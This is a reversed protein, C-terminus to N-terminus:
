ANKRKDTIFQYNDPIFLEVRTGLINGVTDEIDTIRQWIPHVNNQNYFDLQSQILSLGQGNGRTGLEQARKRGIGNDTINILVGNESKQGIINLFGAGKKNVLGHRIANDCYTHLTMTPILLSLDPIDEIDIMYDFRDGFRMKELELYHKLYNLEEQLTVYNKDANVLTLETFKSFVSIYHGARLKDTMAFHGIASLVNKTFHPIVKSRLTKIQLEDELNRYNLEALKQQQSRKVFYRTLLISIIVFLLIYILISIPQLYVPANITIMPSKAINSWHIGDMSCKVEFQYEGNGINTYNVSKTYVPESWKESFGILRYKFRLSKPRSISNAIYEFRLFKNSAPLEILKDSFIVSSWNANDKSYFLVSLRIPPIRRIQAQILKDPNFKLVSLATTLWVDGNHDEFFGNQGSELGTFGADYGIEWLEPQSLSKLRQIDVIILSRNGGVLLYKNHYVMLSYIAGNIRLSDFRMEKGDPMEVFLGRSTGKWVRGRNDPSMCIIGSYARKTTDVELNGNTLIARGYHGGVRIRGKADRAFCLAFGKGWHYFHKNKGAGEFFGQQQSVTDVGSYYIKKNSEDYYIALCAATGTSQGIQKNNKFQVIGDSYPIFMTGDNTKTSGMYQYRFREDNTKIESLKSQSDLKWLGKGYSGFWMNYKDDEVVSWINDPESLNFKYEEINLNFFNYLGNEGCVWLNNERDVFNENVFPLKLGFGTQRAPILRNLGENDTIVLTTDVLAPIGHGSKFPMNWLLKFQGNKLAYKHLHSNSNTFYFINRKWDITTWDSRFPFSVIRIFRLGKRLYLGTHTVLTDGKANLVYEDFGKIRQLKKEKLYFIANFLASKPDFRLNFLFARNDDIPLLSSKSGGIRMGNPFAFTAISDNKHLISFGSLNIITLKDNWNSFGCIDNNLLGNETTYNKFSVGDYKSIGGKTGFWMFGDKDQFACNLQMQALGDRTSYYRYTYSRTLHPKASFAECIFLFLYIFVIRKM